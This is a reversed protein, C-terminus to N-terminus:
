PRQGAHDVIAYTIAASSSDVTGPKMGGMPAGPLVVTTWGLYRYTTPDVIVEFREGQEDVAFAVGHRGIADVADRQATVGPIRALAKFAAAALKAPPRSELLGQLAQAARSSPTGLIGPARKALHLEAYTPKEAWKLLAEPDTPLSSNAALSKGANPFTELAGPHTGKGVQTGPDVHLIDAHRKGDGRDWDEDYVRRYTVGKANVEEVSVDLQKTYAWQTPGPERITQRSVVRAANDGLEQANAVSMGGVGTQRHGVGVTIAAAATVVLGGAVIARLAFRPRRRRVPPMAGTALETMLLGRTAEKVDETLAPTSRRMEKLLQLDDV